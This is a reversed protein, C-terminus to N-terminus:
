NLAPATAVTGGGGGPSNPTACSSQTATWVGNSCSYTASGTMASNTNAIAQSSGSAAASLTGTCSPSSHLRSVSGWTETAAACGAVCTANAAASWTGNSSSCTFTASGSYSPSGNTLTVSNGAASQSTSASCGAGWSLTTGRCPPTVPIRAAPTCSQATFTLTGAQCTATTAGTYSSTSTSATLSQGSSLASFSFACSGYSTVASACGKPVCSASAAGWTGNTCTASAVGTYGPVATSVSPTSGSTSTPLNFTCAGQSVTTAACGDAPATVPTGIQTTCRAFGNIVEYTGGNSCAFGLGGNVHTSGGSANGQQPTTNQALSPAAAFMGASVVALAAIIPLFLRTPKPCSQRTM